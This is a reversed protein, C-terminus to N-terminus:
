CVHGVQVLNLSRTWFLFFELLCACSAHPKFEKSLILFEMSPTLSVMQYPSQLQFTKPFFFFDLKGGNSYEKLCPLALGITFTHDAKPIAYGHEVM